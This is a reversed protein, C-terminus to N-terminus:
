RKAEKMAAGLEPVDNVPVLGVAHMTSGVRVGGTHAQTGKVVGKVGLSRDLEIGLPGEGFSVSYELQSRVLPKGVSARRGRGAQRGRQQEQQQEEQQACLKAMEKAAKPKRFRMTIPGSAPDNLWLGIEARVPALPDLSPDLSPDLPPAAVPTTVPPLIETKLLENITIVRKRAEVEAVEFARHQLVIQAIHVRPGAGGEAAAGPLEVAVSMLIDSWGLITPSRHRNEVAMLPFIKQLLEVARLMAGCNSLTVVLRAADHLRRMGMGDALGDGGGATAAAVATATAAGDSATAAATASRYRHAACDICSQAPRVVPTGVTVAEADKAAAARGKGDKSSGGDSVFRAWALAGKGKGQCLRQELVIAAEKAEAQLGEVSACAESQLPYQQPRMDRVEMLKHLGVQGPDDTKQKEEHKQIFARAREFIQAAENLPGELLKLDLLGNKNFVGRLLQPLLTPHSRTVGVAITELKRQAYFQDVQATRKSLVFGLDFGNTNPGDFNEADVTV